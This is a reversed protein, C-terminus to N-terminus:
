PRTTPTGPVVVIGGAPGATTDVPLSFSFPGVTAPPNWTATVTIEVPTGPVSLKLGHMVFTAGVPPDVSVTLPDSSSVTLTAVGDISLKDGASNTAFVTCTSDQNDGFVFDVPVAGAAMKKPPAAKAAGAAMKLVSVKPKAM